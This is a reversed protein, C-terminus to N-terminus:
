AIPTSSANSPLTSKHTVFSASSGGRYYPHCHILAPLHLQQPDPHHLTLKTTCVIDDLKSANTLSLTM